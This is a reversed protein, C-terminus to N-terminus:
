RADEGRLIMDLDHDHEQQISGLMSVTKELGRVHSLLFGTITTDIVLLVVM